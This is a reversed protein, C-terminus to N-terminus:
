KAERFMCKKDACSACKNKMTNKEPMNKDPMKKQASFGIVATVSKTPIMMYGETLTLGIKIECSLLKLIDKQYEIAFDGYGPSFRTTKYLGSIESLEAIEKEISDCVTDCYAEIMAAAAAQAVLAKQMDQVSYRRILTDAVPGLTAALIVASTCGSLHCALDKSKVTLDGITVTNGEASCDASMYVNAPVVNAALEDCLRDVLSVIKEDASAGKYGLYRIVEQRLFDSKCIEM